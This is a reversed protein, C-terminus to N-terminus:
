FNNFDTSDISITIPSHDPAQYGQMVDCREVHEKMSESVLFYDLRWGKDPNVTRMMGSCWSYRREGPHLMRFADSVHCENLLAVFDDIEFQMLGPMKNITKAYNGHYDIETACVNMDGCIVFPKDLSSIYKRFAADWAIRLSEKNGSNPVYVNIVYFTDNVCTEIIRGGIYQTYQTYQAYKSDINEDIPMDIDVARSVAGLGDRVLTVVGAYGKKLSNANLLYSLKCSAAIDAVVKEDNCKAEQFCYIDYDPFDHMLQTLKGSNNFAKLGNVNYSLIKM